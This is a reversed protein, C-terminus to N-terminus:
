AVLGRNIDIKARSSLRMTASLAGYIEVWARRVRPTFAEGLGQELTWLLAEGVPEFSDPPIKYLEFHRKGMALVVYFLDDNEAVREAWQADRYDLSKVIFALMTILKNKQRRLDPKFLERYAPRLEFLRNYFLDAATDAIPVVLRFSEVIAQRKTEDLM